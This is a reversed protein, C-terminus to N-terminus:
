QPLGPKTNRFKTPLVWCTILVSGAFLFLYGSHVRMNNASQEKWYVADLYRRFSGSYQQRAAGETLASTVMREVAKRPLGMRKRVRQDAHDSVDLDM